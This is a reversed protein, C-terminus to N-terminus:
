KKSSHTTRVNNSLYFLETLWVSCARHSHSLLENALIKVLVGIIWTSIHFMDINCPQSYSLYDFCWDLRTWGVNDSKKKKGFWWLLFINKEDKNTILVIFCHLEFVKSTKLKWQQQQIAFLINDHTRHSISHIYMTSINDRWM